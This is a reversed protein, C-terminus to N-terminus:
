EIITKTFEIFIVIPTTDDIIFVPFSNRNKITKFHLIRLKNRRPHCSEPTNNYM